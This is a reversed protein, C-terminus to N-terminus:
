LSHHGCTDCESVLTHSLEVTESHLPGVSVHDHLGVFILAHNDELFDTGSIGGEFLELFVHGLILAPLINSGVLKMDMGRRFM